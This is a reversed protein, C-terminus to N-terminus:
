KPMMTNLSDCAGSGVLKVDKTDEPCRDLACAFLCPNPYTRGDSGCQYDINKPCKCGFCDQSLEAPQIRESPSVHAQECSGEKAINVDRTDEPCKTKACEFLCNNQYTRGDSGCVPM